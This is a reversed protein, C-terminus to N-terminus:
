SGGAMRTLWVLWMLSLAVYNVAFVRGRLTVDDGSVQVWTHAIRGALFIWALVVEVTGGVGTAFILAVLVYFLMPLQFQNDLNRAWRRSAEPERGWAFGNREAGARVAQYRRLSVMAFLVQVLALHGVLPWLLAQPAETM